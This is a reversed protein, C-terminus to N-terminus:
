WSPLRSAGGVLDVGRDHGAPSDIAIQGPRQGEQRRGPAPPPSAARRRGTELDIPGCRGLRAARGQPGAAARGAARGAGSRRPAVPPCRCDPAAPALPTVSPFYQRPPVPPSAHPAAAARIPRRPRRAPFPAAPSPAPRGPPAALPPTAVPVETLTLTSAPPSGVSDSVSPDLPADKSVWFRGQCRPCSAYSGALKNPVSLPQKCRPCQTRVAMHTILQVSHWVEHFEVPVSRPHDLVTSAMVLVAPLLMNVGAEGAITEARQSRKVRLVDSQSRFIRALPTGLHEGQIITGIISTIEDDALRDRMSQFAEMRTKGLNMDALVRGFEEAVPHGRFEDVAQNLANLFTAGAEMLLTLLDLLYPMRRKIQRLRTRRGPPWATACSGPRSFSAWRPRAVDGRPGFIWVLAYIWLPTSCLALVQLRALYEEPLWFRPLGSAQVQRHIEALGERFVARNVRALVTFVPYFLRYLPDIRRLENMRSVDYRWEAGQELDDSELVRFVWWVLVAIAAGILASAVAECASEPRCFPSLSSRMTFFSRSYCPSPPMGERRLRTPVNVTPRSFMGRGSVM